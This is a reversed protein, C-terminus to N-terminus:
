AKLYFKEGMGFFRVINIKQEYKNTLYGDFFGYPGSYNSKLIFLNINVKTDIVPTFRLNTKDYEDRIIWEKDVGDPRLVKIPPLVHLEGDHWLCNENYKEPNEVQNDTLNFGLLKGGMDFGMATVWDYQTPYPYYGKHDDIIMRSNRDDFDIETDAIKLKGQMPMLCKHSYMVRNKWFPQCVVMPQFRSINHYGEFYAEIAPLTASAKIVAKLSLKAQSLDHTVRIQFNDSNYFAESGYLTTPLHISNPFVKKEYRYKKNRKIDYVIFQVLAMKKANYLAVMIFYDDNGLQFAQWERLQITQITQPLWWYPKPIDLLNAEKFPSNYSGVQIQGNQFVKEPATGVPRPIYKKM